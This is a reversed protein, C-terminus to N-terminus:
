KKVRILYGTTINEFKIFFQILKILPFLIFYLLMSILAYLKLFYNKSFKLRVSLVFINDIFGDRNSIEVKSFNKFIYKLGYRTYRYFDNPEEHIPFIFPVSFLLVTKKTSLKFLNQIVKFPEKVHELVEFCTIYDPKIKIKNLFKEDSIDAIIDPKTKSNIDISILKINPISKLYEEIEGGAGINLINIRKKNKSNINKEIFSNLNQRTIKKSLIYLFRQLWNM